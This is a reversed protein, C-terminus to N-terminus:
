AYSREEEIFIEHWMEFFVLPWLLNYKKGDLLKKVNPYNFYGQREVRERSLAEQMRDALGGELWSKLPTAFPHKKRSIIERPLIGSMARKLLYKEDFRKLKLSHPVKAAFEILRHDLFPVRAEVANAMTMKDVNMLLVDPLPVSLEFKSMKDFLNGSGSFQNRVVSDTFASKPSALLNKREDADSLSILGLYCDQPVSISKSLGAAAELYRKAKRPIPARSLLSAIGQVPAHRLVRKIIPSYALSLIRYQRYGMFLEDSGEGVLAVTVVKKAKQSILYEPISSPDPVPEDFHWVIKPLIKLDRMNLIVEQHDTGFHEAVIRAYKLEDYYGGEEFGASITKVPERMSSAMLAVVSSSDLGGSLFAGLPVESMLHSSVSEKLLGFLENKCQEEGLTSDERFEVDWYKRIEHTGGKFSLTCAAPLKFIGSFMTKPAPVYGFTLYSYLADNDVKRIIGPHLLIAKIESAFVISDNITAYYLPKIGPRDRALLLKKWREDWIAFAFMGQLHKACAEGYEEYAHIITETDSSTRFKHGKKELAQKLELYNYIEGNFVICVTNDENYMPQKGGGVDIISLRRHGLCVNKGIFYGSDDPGRHSLIDAMKRILKKDEFGAFGTIGCM